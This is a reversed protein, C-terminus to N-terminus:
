VPTTGTGAVRAGCIGVTDQLRVNLGGDEDLNRFAEARALQVPIEGRGTASDNM